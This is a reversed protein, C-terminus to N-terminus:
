PDDHQYQGRAEEAQGADAVQEPHARLLDLVPRQRRSWRRALTPLDEGVEVGPRAVVQREAVLGDAEVGVDVLAQETGWRTLPGVTTRFDDRALVAPQEEGLVDVPGARRLLRRRARQPGRVPQRLHHARNTGGSLVDM